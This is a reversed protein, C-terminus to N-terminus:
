KKKTTDKPMQAEIQRNFEGLIEFASNKLSDARDVSFSKGYTSAMNYFVGGIYQWQQLTFSISLTKLQAPVTDVGNTIDRAKKAAATFRNSNQANVRFIMVTLLLAAIYFTYKM